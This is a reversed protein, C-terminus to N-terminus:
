RSVREFVAAGDTTALERLLPGGDRSANALRRAADRTAPVVTVVYRARYRELLGALTSDAARPDPPTVYEAATFRAPPLALRGTFLYVLPEADCLVVDSPSSNRAVWRIVPAIQASAERAPTSWASQRYTLVEARALGAAIFGLPVLAVFRLPRAGLRQSLQWAFIGGEALLLLAFPWVAWLFRWPAYPWVLTLAVYLATFAVTIPARRWLRLGGLVILVIAVTVTVIRLSGPPWLSLRDGLLGATQSANLAITSALLPLGGAVRDGFGAALWGLYSGYSGRLEAPIAGNHLLVWIQWPLLAALLGLSCALAGRRRKRMVLLVVVAAGAVVAHMRVLALAGSALGLLVMHRDKPATGGPDEELIREAALLFPFLLAVFLVESMLHAALLLLPLSLTACLALAAAAVPPWALRREAFRCIGWAAVALQLAQLALFVTLNGPFDPALRWIAGLLLPYAPPYHTAAPAGPLHLYHYGQGTALAKALILYVGDDHFIGVPYPRFAWAGVALALAGAVVPTLARPWPVTRHRTGSSLEALAAASAV